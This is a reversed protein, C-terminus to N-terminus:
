PGLHRGLAEEGDIMGNLLASAEMEIVMALALVRALVTACGAVRDIGTAV